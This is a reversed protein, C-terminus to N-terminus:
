VLQFIKVTNKNLWARSQSPMLSLLTEQQYVNIDDETMNELTVRRHGTKHNAFSNLLQHFGKSVSRLFSPALKGPWSLPFLRIRGMRDWQLRCRHAQRCHISESDRRKQGSILPFSSEPFSIPWCYCFNQSCSCLLVKGIKALLELLPSIKCVSKFQIPGNLVGILRLRWHQITRILVIIDLWRSRLKSWFALIFIIQVRETKLM